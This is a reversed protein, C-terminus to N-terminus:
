PHQMANGHLPDFILSKQIWIHSRLAYPMECKAYGPKIIAFTRCILRKIEM